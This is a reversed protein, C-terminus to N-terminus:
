GISLFVAATEQFVAVILEKTAAFIIYTVCGYSVFLCAAPPTLLPRHHNIVITSITAVHGDEM